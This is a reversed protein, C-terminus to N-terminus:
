EEYELYCRVKRQVMPIAYMEFLSVFCQWIMYKSWLAEKSARAKPSQIGEKTGKFSNAIMLCAKINGYALIAALITVLTKKLWSNWYSLLTCM